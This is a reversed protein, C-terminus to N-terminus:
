AKENTAGTLKGFQELIRDIAARAEEAEKESLKLAWQADEREQEVYLAKLKDRDEALSKLRSELVTVEHRAAEAEKLHVLRESEKAQVQQTSSELQVKLETIAELQEHMFTDQEERKQKLADIEAKLQAVEGSASHSILENQRSNTREQELLTTLEDLRKHLEGNERRIVTLTEKAEASLKQFRDIARALDERSELVLQIRSPKLTV